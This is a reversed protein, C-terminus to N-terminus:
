CRCWEGHMGLFIRGGDGCCGLDCFYLSIWVFFSHDFTVEMEKMRRVAAEGASASEAMSDAAARLTICDSREADLEEQCILLAGEAAHLERELEEVGGIADEAKEDVRHLFYADADPGECITSM